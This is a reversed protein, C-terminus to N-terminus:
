NGIGYKQELRDGRKCIRTNLMYLAISDARSKEM